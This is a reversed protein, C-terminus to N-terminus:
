TYVHVSPSDSGFEEFARIGIELALIRQMVNAIQM